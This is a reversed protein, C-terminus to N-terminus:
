IEPTESPDAPALGWKKVNGDKSEHIWSAGSPM